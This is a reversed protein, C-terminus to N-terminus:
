ELLEHKTVRWPAFQAVGGSICSHLININWCYSHRQLSTNLLKENRIEAPVGGIEHKEENVESYGHLYRPLVEM